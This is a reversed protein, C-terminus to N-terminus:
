IETRIVSQIGEISRLKKVLTDLLKRENVCVDMYGEFVGDESGLNFRRINVGMVLSVYRTIENIMGVRDVGKLSLRVTFENNDIGSWEPIVIRNGFKAAMSNATACTKKHISILGDPGKFGVVADGPIPNCCSAVIYKSKLAKVEKKKPQPEM